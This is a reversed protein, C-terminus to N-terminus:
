SENEVESIKQLINNALINPVFEDLYTFEECAITKSTTRKYCNINRCSDYYVDYKKCNGCIKKITMKYPEAIDKIETLATKLKDYEQILQYNMKGTATILGKDCQRQKKLKENEAKHPCIECHDNSWGDIPTNFFTNIEDKKMYFTILEDKKMLEKRLEKYEQEKRQIYETKSKVEAKLQDLQSTLDNKWDDFATTFREFWNSCDTYFMMGKVWNKIKECEQEKRKLQQELKRRKYWDCNYDCCKNLMCEYDGCHEFGTRWECKSVDIEGM